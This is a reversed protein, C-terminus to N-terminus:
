VYSYTNTFSDAGFWGVGCQELEGSKLSSERWFMRILLPNSKSKTLDIYRNTHITVYVCFKTLTILQINPDTENLFSKHSSIMRAM